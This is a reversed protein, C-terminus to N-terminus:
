VLGPEVLFMVSGAISVSTKKARFIFSQTIESGASGLTSEYITKQSGMADGAVVELMGWRRTHSLGGTPM